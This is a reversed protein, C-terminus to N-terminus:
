NDLTGCVVGLHVSITKGVVVTFLQPTGGVVRCPSEVDKLTILHAGPSLGAFTESANVAIQRTDAGAVTLRYGDPDTSDGTTSVNVLFRGTTAQSCRVQFAVRAVGDSEVKVSRPNPGEVRCNDSRGSLRVSHSGESLSDLTVTGGAEVFQERGGDVSVSFGDTETDIGSTNVAVNIRGDNSVSILTDDCGALPILLILALASAIRPDM